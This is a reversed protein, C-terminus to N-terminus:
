RSARCRTRTRLGLLAHVVSGVVIVVALGPTIGHESKLRAVHGAIRGRLGEAFAKGDILKATMLAEPVIHRTHLLVDAL